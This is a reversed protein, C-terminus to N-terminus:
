RLRRVLFLYAKDAKVVRSEHTDPILAASVMQWIELADASIDEVVLCGGVTLRTLAFILTALNANPSHLGDDIILDFASPLLEGLADFSRADTQDVFFTRIRDESFLIGRDIDAGYIEAAPLFDRFARLSAGPSGNSTMHSIVNENNTGLGIELVASADRSRLLPGYLLHYHHGVDGKDSGYRDFLAKLALAADQEVATATFSDVPVPDEIKVGACSLLDLLLPFTQQASQMTLAALAPWSGRSMPAFMPFSEAICISTKHLVRREASREVRNKVGKVFRASSIVPEPLAAVWGRHSRM